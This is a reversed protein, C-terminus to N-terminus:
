LVVTISINTVTQEEELSQVSPSLDSSHLWSFCRMMIAYAMSLTAFNAENLGMQLATRAILKGEQLCKDKINLSYEVLYFQVM